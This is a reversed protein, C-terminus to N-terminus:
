HRNLWVITPVGDRDLSVLSVSGPAMALHDRESQRWDQGMWNLLLLQLVSEHTVIAVSTRGRDKAGIQIRPGM